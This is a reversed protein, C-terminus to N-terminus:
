AGDKCDGSRGAPSKSKSTSATTEESALKTLLQSIKEKKKPDANIDSNGTVRQFENLITQINEAKDNSSKADNAPPV